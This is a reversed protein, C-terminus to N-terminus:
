QDIRELLASIQAQQAGLQDGQDKIVKDREALAAAARSAERSELFLSAQHILNRMHPIPIREIHADTLAAVDEVTRVGRTRFVEAQEPTVANWAGIPTGEVPAEQGDKWARYHRRIIDARAHAMVISPNSQDHM